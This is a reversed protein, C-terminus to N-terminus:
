GTWFNEHGMGLVETLDELRDMGGRGLDTPRYVDGGSDVDGLERKFVAFVLVEPLAYDDENSRWQLAWTRVLPFHDLECFLEFLVVHRDVKDREPITDLLALRAYELRKDVISGATVIRLHERSEDVWLNRVHFKTYVNPTQEGLAADVTLNRRTTVWKTLPGRFVM